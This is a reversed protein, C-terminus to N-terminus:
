RCIKFKYGVIKLCTCGDFSLRATSDRLSCALSNFIFFSLTFEWTVKKVEIRSNNPFKLTIMNEMMKSALVNEVAIRNM